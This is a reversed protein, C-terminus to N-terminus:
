REVSTEIRLLVEFVDAVDLFVPRQWQRGFAPFHILRWEIVQDGGCAKGCAFERDPSGADIKTKREEPSKNPM